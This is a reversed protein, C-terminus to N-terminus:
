IIVCVLNVGWFVPNKVQLSLNAIVYLEYLRIRLSYMNIRVIFLSLHFRGSLLKTSPLNTIWLRPEIVLLCLHYAILFSSLLLTNVSVSTDASTQNDDCGSFCFAEGGSTGKYVGNRPRHDEWVYQGQSAFLFISFLFSFCYCYCFIGKFYRKKLHLIELICGYPFHNQPFCSFTTIHGHSVM